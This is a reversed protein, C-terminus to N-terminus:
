NRRARALNLPHRQVNCINQLLARFPAGWAWGHGAGRVLPRCPGAPDVRPVAAHTPGARDCPTPGRKTFKASMSKSWVWNSM